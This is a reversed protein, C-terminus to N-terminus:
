SFLKLVRPVIARADPRDGKWAPCRRALEAGESLIMQAQLAAGPAQGFIELAVAGPSLRQPRFRHGRRYRCSLIGAVPYSTQGDLTELRAVRRQLLVYGDSFPQAGHRVLSKTLTSVGSGEPGLILLAQDQVIVAAGRVLFHRSSSLGALLHLEHELSRQIDREHHSRAALRSGQYLLHFDRTRERQRGVRYSFLVDVQPGECPELRLPELVNQLFHWGELCDSRFGLSM